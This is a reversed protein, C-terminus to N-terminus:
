RRLAALDAVMKAIMAEFSTEPAWGLGERARSPDGVSPTTEQPRVFAPNVVIRGGSSVGAAAFAADVLDDVTASPSRILRRRDVTM